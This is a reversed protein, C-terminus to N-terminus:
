PPPPLQTFQPTLSSVQHLGAEVRPTESDMGEQPPAPRPRGGEWMVWLGPTSPGGLEPGARSSPLQKAQAPGEAERSTPGRM